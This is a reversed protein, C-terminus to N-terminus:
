IEGEIHEAIDKSLKKAFMPPEFIIERKPMSWTGFQHFSAVESNVYFSASMDELKDTELKSVAQFLEGTRILTPSGPFRSAKWTGYEADLPKWTGGGNSLFDDVYIEELDRKSKKLVPKLNQAAHEVKEIYKIAKLGNYDTQVRIVSAM